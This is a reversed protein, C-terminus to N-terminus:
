KKEGGAVVVVVVLVVGRRTEWEGMREWIGCKGSKGYLGGANKNPPPKDGRVRVCGSYGM